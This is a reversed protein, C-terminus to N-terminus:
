KVVQVDASAQIMQDAGQATLLLTSLNETLDTFTFTYKGPGGEIKCPLFSVPQTQAGQVTVTLVVNLGAPMFQGFLQGTEGSKITEPEFRISSFVAMVEEKGVVEGGETATFTVKGADEPALSALACVAEGTSAVTTCDLERRPTKATIKVKSALLHKHLPTM